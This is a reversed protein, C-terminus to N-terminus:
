DFIQAEKQHHTTQTSRGGILFATKWIGAPLFALIALCRSKFNPVFKTFTGAKGSCRAGTNITSDTKMFGIISIGRVGMMSDNQDVFYVALVV